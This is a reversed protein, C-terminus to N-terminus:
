GCCAGGSCCSDTATPIPKIGVRTIQVRWVTPGSELAAWEFQGFARDDLQFRLPQPDHDNVLQLSQGAQLADFRGFVLAHRERPAITRLDIAAPTATALTSM